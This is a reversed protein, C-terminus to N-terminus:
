LSDKVSLRRYLSCFLAPAAVTVFYRAHELMMEHQLKGRRCSKIAHTLLKYEWRRDAMAVLKVALNVTSGQRLGRASGGATTAM